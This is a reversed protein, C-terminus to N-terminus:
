FLTAVDRDKYSVQGIMLLTCSEAKKININVDQNVIRHLLDHIKPHHPKGCVNGNGLKM